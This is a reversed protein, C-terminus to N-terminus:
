MTQLLRVWRLLKELDVEGGLVVPYGARRLPPTWEPLKSGVALSLLLQFGGEGENEPLRLRPPQTKTSVAVGRFTQRQSLAVALAMADAADGDGGQLAGGTAIAVAESDIPYQKMLSAAFRSVVEVEKPQWRQQDEAAVACVVVGSAKSAETWGELYDMPSGQGPNMLLVLLGLRSNSEQSSPYAVAAVNGAEPLKWEKVQWRGSDNQKWDSPFETLAADTITETLLDLEQRMGQRIVTFRLSTEPAASILMRQLSGKERVPDGDVAVILDGAQFIKQAVTGPIVQDVVLGIADSEAAATESQLEESENQERPSEAIRESVLVGIRQPELPPITAALTVEVEKEEDGRRFGISIQEGADYAGLAQRIQLQRQVEVGGVTTIADGPKLGAAEAPSRRRVAAIETGDSYPDSSRSVIGIVGRQIEEGAKMRELKRAIVEAPIAFAIGSDYWSTSSEAGGEAVAPILVGVVRGYLDILPGGYFSPSIRADCQLAIGDLRGQASLIGRSVLPSQNEGYRGVGIVTQGVTLDTTETLSAAPLPTSVDIKLLVLDRHRDRAVVRAARREGDGLIVLLGASPRSTVLSSALVFGSPDVILGSSPADTEVEGEGDGVGGIVEISVVCPLYRGAAQRVASAMAIQYEVAANGRRPTQVETQGSVANGREIADDVAAQTEPAALENTIAQGNTIAQRLSGHQGLILPLFLGALYGIWQKRECMWLMDGNVM